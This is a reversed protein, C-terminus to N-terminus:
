GRGALMEAGVSQRIALTCGEPLRGDEGIGFASGQLEGLLSVRM